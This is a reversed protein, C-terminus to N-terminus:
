PAWSCFLTTITFLYGLPSLAEFIAAQQSSHVNKDYWIFTMLDDRDNADEFIPVPLFHPIM